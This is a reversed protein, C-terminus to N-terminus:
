RGVKVNKGHIGKMKKNYSKTARKKGAAKYKKYEEGNEEKLKRRRERNATKVGCKNSCFRRKRKDKLVYWNDCKIDECTRYTGFPLGELAQCFYFLLTDEDNPAKFALHIPAKLLAEESIHATVDEGERELDEWQLIPTEIRVNVNFSTQGLCFYNELDPIPKRGEKVEDLTSKFRQKMNQFFEKCHKQCIELKEGKRWEVLIEEMPRDSHWRQPPLLNKKPKQDNFLLPGLGYIINIADTTLKMREGLTLTGLDTNIFDMFWQVCLIQSKGKM